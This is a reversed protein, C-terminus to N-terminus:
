CIQELRDSDKHYYYVSDALVECEEVQTRNIETVMTLLEEKDTADKAPLLIVEHISSPLIYLDSNKEKSFNKLIDPYFICAAGQMKQRNSLVYMPIREEENEIDEKLRLLLQDIWEQGATESAAENEGAKPGTDKKMSGHLMGVIMDEINEISAPFMRPTNSLAQCYLEQFDIHWSELHSNHILISAKGYFPPEQVAYYFVMALNYFVKHPITKLLEKNKEYNVLKFAVQKKAREYQIFGSLDVSDPIKTQRFIRFIEDVIEDISVGNQFNEYFDNIYITPSTNCNKEEVIIGTLEIGNNKKVHNSFIKYDEGMKEQLGKVVSATFLMFNMSTNM